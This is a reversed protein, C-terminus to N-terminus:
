HDYIRKYLNSSLFHILSKYDIYIITSFYLHKCLYNYKIVFMMIIYLERKYIFYKRKIFAFTFSNYIISIKMVKISMVDIIKFDRFQTIAFDVEFEFVNIYFHIFFRLNINHM